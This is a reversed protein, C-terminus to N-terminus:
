KTGQQFFVAKAERSLSEKEERLLAFNCAFILEDFEHNKVIDKKFRNLVATSAGRLGEHDIVEELMSKIQQSADRFMKPNKQALNKIEELLFHKMFPDNFIDVDGMDESFMDESFFDFPEFEGGDNDGPFDYLPDDLFEFDLHQLAHRYPGHTHRSLSEGAAQFKKRMEPDADETLNMLGDVDWDNYEIGDLVLAYFKLLDHNSEKRGQRIRRQLETQFPPLNDPSVTRDMFRIFDDNNLHTLVTNKSKLFIEHIRLNAFVHKWERPFPMLLALLERSTLQSIQGLEKQFLTDIKKFVTVYNKQPKDQVDMRLMSVLKLRQFLSFEDLNSEITKEPIDPHECIQYFFEKEKVLFANTGTDLNQAKELDQRARQYHGKNLGKDASIILAIIHMNQVRSDYPALKIAKKLINEAKRFANKGHYLSALEICPYPDDPFAECMSLLLGEKIKKSERTHVDMQAALEYLERNGADCQIGRAACQMWIKDIDEDTSLGFREATNSNLGLLEDQIMESVCARCVHLFIASEVMALNQPDSGTKKLHDLYQAANDLPADMSLIKRKNEILRAKEPLLSKEFEMFMFEEEHPLGQQWLTELLYQRAYEPDDPLIQNSFSIMLQKMKNDFQHKEEREIIKEATEWVDLPGEWLCAELPTDAKICTKKEVSQVSTTLVAAIKAFVSVQPIMSIAKCMNKDDKQGFLAMARCFMRIHAFSSSRKLARMGDAAQQWQGKDMLPICAKVIPADRSISFPVEKKIHFNRYIALNNENKTTKQTNLTGHGSPGHHNDLFDWGGQIVLRDALLVGLLPDEGKRAIYQKAYDFAKQIDSQEIVFTMSPLDMTGLSPLYNMAHKRLSAAEMAMNKVALEEARQMYALFLKRHGEQLQDESKANKLALKYMQIADRPNHKDGKQLLDDFELKAIRQQKEKIKKRAKKNKKAM